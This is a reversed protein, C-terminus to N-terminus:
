SKIPTLFDAFNYRNANFFAVKGMAIIIVIIIINETIWIVM